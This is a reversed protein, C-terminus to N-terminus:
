PAVVALFEETRNRSLRPAVVEVVLGEEALFDGFDGGDLGGAVAGEAVGLVHAGVTDAEHHLLGFELGVFDLDAGVGEAAGREIAILVNGVELYEGSGDCFTTHTHYNAKLEM